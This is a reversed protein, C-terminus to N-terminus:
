KELFKFVKIIRTNKTFKFAIIGFVTGATNAIFDWFSGTRETLLLEQFMETIAGYGLGLLFVIWLHKRVNSFELNKKDKLFFGISLLFAFVCFLTTHVIKDFHPIDFFSSEDSSVPVSILVFIILGWIVSPLFFRFAM